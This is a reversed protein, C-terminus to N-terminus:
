RKKKLARKDAPRPKDGSIQLELRQEPVERGWADLATSGAQADLTLAYRYGPQLPAVFRMSYDFGTAGADGPADDSPVVRDAEDLLRLRANRLGVASRVSLGIAPEIIPRGGDFEVSREGGDGLRAVIVLQLPAPLVALGSGSGGDAVAASGDGALEGADTGPSAPRPCGGLLLVEAVLFLAFWFGRRAGMPAPYWM